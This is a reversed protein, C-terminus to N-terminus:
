SGIDQYLVYGPSQLSLSFLIRGSTAAIDPIAIDATTMILICDPTTHASHPITHASTHPLTNAEAGPSM